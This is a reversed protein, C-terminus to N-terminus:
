WLTMAQWIFAILTLWITLIHENTLREVGNSYSMEFGEDSTEGVMLDLFYFSFLENNQFHFCNSLFGHLSTNTNHFIFNSVSSATNNNCRRWHIIRQPNGYKIVHEHADLIHDPWVFGMANCRYWTCSNDYLIPLGLAITYWRRRRNMWSSISVCNEYTNSMYDSIIGMSLIGIQVQKVSDVGCLYKLHM